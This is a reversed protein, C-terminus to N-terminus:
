NSAPRNQATPQNPTRAGRLSGRFFNGQAPSNGQQPFNTQDTQPQLPANTFHQKQGPQQGNANTTQRQPCIDSHCKPHGCIFCGRRRPDRPTNPQNTRMPPSRPRDPGHNGWIGNPAPSSSRYGTSDVWQSENSNMPQGARYALSQPHGSGNNGWNGPSRSRYGTSTVWQPGNSYRRDDDHPRNTWPSPFRDRRSYGQDRREYGMGSSHNGGIRWPSPSRPRDYGRHEYARNDMRDRGWRNVNPPPTTGRPPTYGRSHNEPARYNPSPSSRRPPTGSHKDDSDSFSKPPRHELAELRAILPKLADEIQDTTEPASTVIRVVKKPKVETAAAFRRAKQVTEQFNDELTHLRLYQTMEVSILGEEFRRKLAQDRQKSDSDPWAERYLTRLAQEFEVLTESDGQKRLDFRRM